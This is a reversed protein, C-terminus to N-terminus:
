VDAVPRQMMKEYRGDAGLVEVFESLRNMATEAEALCDILEEEGHREMAEEFVAREINGISRCAMRTRVWPDAFAPVKGRKGDEEGAGFTRIVEIKEAESPAANVAKVLDNVQQFTLGKDITKNTAEKFAQPADISGLRDQKQTGLMGWGAAPIGLERARRAAQALRRARNVNEERTGLQRAAQRATQFFGLEMLRVAERVREADTLPKGHNRNLKFGLLIREPERLVKVVYATVHTLKSRRAGEIRHHFDVIHFKGSKGRSLVGAPFRTGWELDLGYREATDPDIAVDRMQWATFGGGDLVTTDIEGIAVVKFEWPLLEEQLLKEVRADQVFQDAGLDETAVTTPTDDM